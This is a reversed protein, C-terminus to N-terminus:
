RLNSSGWKSLQVAEAYPYEDETVWLFTHEKPRQQGKIYRVIKLAIDLWGSNFALEPIVIGSRGGSNLTTLSLFKGYENQKM